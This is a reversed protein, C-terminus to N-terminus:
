IKNVVNIFVKGKKLDKQLRRFILLYAARSKLIKGLIRNRLTYYESGVLLCGETDDPTNGAHIRIGAFQPVNLLLPMLRGFRNSWNIIIEYRGDPIATDGKIKEGKVVGNVRRLRIPDELVKCLPTDVLPDPAEGSNSVYLYGLTADQVATHRLLLYETQM